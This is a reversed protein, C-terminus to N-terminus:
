PGCRWTGQLTQREGGNRVFSATAPFAPSEGGGTTAGTIALEVSLDTGTFSGGRTMGNFGGPAAVRQAGGRFKVVGQAATKSAVDGSAYLLSAGNAESFSCALEGPLKAEEIDQESM